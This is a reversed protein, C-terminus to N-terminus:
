DVMRFLKNRGAREIKSNYYSSKHFELQKQYKNCAEAFIERHVELGIKRFMRQARRKIFKALCLDDNYWPAHPRHTIWRSKMPALDNYIKELATNYKSVLTILEVTCLSNPDKVYPPKPMIDHMVNATFSKRRYTVYSKSAPPKPCNLNCTLVKRDSFLDPLLKIYKALGLLPARTLKNELREKYRIFVTIFSM